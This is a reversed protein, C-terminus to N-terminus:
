RGGGGGGPAAGAAHVGDVNGVIALDTPAFKGPLAYAAEYGDITYVIEGLGAQAMNCAVQPAGRPSLDHALPQVILLGIGALRQDKRTAVVRGIVKALEM